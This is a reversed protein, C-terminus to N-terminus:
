TSIQPRRQFGTQDGVFDTQVVFIDTEDGGRKQRDVPLTRKKASLTRKLVSYIRKMATTSKGYRFSRDPLRVPFTRKLASLTRKTASYIRKTATTSKGYRFSRDQLGVPFTRKLASYIRKM